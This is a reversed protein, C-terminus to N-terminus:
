RKTFQCDCGGSRDSDRSLIAGGEHLRGALGGVDDGGTVELAALVVSHVLARSGLVGFFGVGFESPRDITLNHIPFDNGVFIATFPSSSNGVPEWGKGAAYGRGYSALNISAALEYGICGSAPCGTTMNEPSNAGAQYGSGDLIFRINNLEDATRIEILGDGDDDVDEAATVNDGDDRDHPNNIVLHVVTDRFCRTPTCVGYYGSRAVPFSLAITRREEPALSLEQGDIKEDTVDLVANASVYFSLDVVPCIGPCFLDASFTVSGGSSLVRSGVLRAERVQVDAPLLVRPGATCDDEVCAGYYRAAAGAAVTVTAEYTGGGQPSLRMGVLKDTANILDDASEYFRVVAPACLAGRACSLVASLDLPEGVATELFGGATENAGTVRFDGLTLSVIDAAPDAFAPLTRQEEQAAAGGLPCTLAPYQYTEGFDWARRRM